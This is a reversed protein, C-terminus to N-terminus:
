FAEKIMVYLGHSEKSWGYDIRLNLKEREKIMLRLGFGYAFHIGSLSDPTPFGRLIGRASVGLLSRSRVLGPRARAGISEPAENNVGKLRRSHGGRRQNSFKFDDM